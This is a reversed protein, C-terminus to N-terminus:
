VGSFPFSGFGSGLHSPIPEGTAVGAVYSDLNAVLM